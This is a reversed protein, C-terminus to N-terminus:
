RAVGKRTPKRGKLEPRRFLRPRDWNPDGCNACRRPVEPKRPHWVRGCRVCQFVPLKVITTGM